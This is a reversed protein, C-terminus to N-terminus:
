YRKRAIIFRIHGEFETPETDEDESDADEDTEYTSVTRIYQDIFDDMFNLDDENPEEVENNQEQYNEVSSLVEEEFEDYNEM